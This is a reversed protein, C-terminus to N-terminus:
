SESRPPRWGSLWDEAPVISPEEGNKFFWSDVTYRDGSRKERVVATNHPWFFGRHLPKGVDHWRLAGGEKLFSLYLSTNITEDVCDMQGQDYYKYVNEGLDTHTGVKEGVIKEILSIAKSIQKREGEPNNAPDNFFEMVQYWQGEDLSVDSRIVCGNGHCVTFKKPTALNNGDMALQMSYDELPGACGTLFSLAGILIVSSLLRPLRM